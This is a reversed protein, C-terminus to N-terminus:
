LVDIPNHVYSIIKHNKNIFYLSVIIKLNGFNNESAKKVM